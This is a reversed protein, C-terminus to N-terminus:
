YNIDDCGKPDSDEGKCYTIKCARTITGGCLDALTKVNNDDVAVSASDLYTSDIYNDSITTAMNSTTSVTTEGVNAAITVCVVAFLGAILGYQLMGQAKKKLNNM